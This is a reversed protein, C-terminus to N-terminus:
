AVEELNIPPPLEQGITLGDLGPDQVEVSGLHIAIELATRTLIEQWANLDNLDEPGLPRPELKLRVLAEAAQVAANALWPSTLTAEPRSPDHGILEFALKRYADM